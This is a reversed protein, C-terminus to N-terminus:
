VRKAQPVVVRYFLYWVFAWGLAGFLGHSEGYEVMGFALLAGLLIEVASDQKM